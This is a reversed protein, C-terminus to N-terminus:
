LVRWTRGARTVRLDAAGPTCVVLHATDANLLPYRSYARRASAYDAATAARAAAAERAHSDGAAPADRPTGPFHNAWGTLPYITDRDGTSSIALARAADALLYFAPSAARLATIAELNEPLSAGHWLSDRLLWPAPVAAAVHSETFAQNIAGFVGSRKSYGTIAGVFGPFGVLHLEKDRDHLRFVSTYEGIGAPFSWDLARLVRLEGASDRHASATCGVTLDHAYCSTLDYALNLLLLTARPVDAARALGAIEAMFQTETDRVYAALAWAAPTAWFSNVRPLARVARNVVAQVKRKPVNRWRYEPAARMDIDYIPLSM